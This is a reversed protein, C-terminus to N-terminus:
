LNSFTLNFWITNTASQKDRQNGGAHGSRVAPFHRVRPATIAPCFWAVPEVELLTGTSSNRLVTMTANYTAETSAQGTVSMFLTIERITGATSPKPISM